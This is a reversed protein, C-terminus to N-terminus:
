NLANILSQFGLNHIVQCLSEDAKKNNEYFDSITNLVTDIEDLKYYVPLIYPMSLNNESINKIYIGLGKEVAKLAYFQCNGVCNGCRICKESHFVLDTGIKELANAPCYRTCRTCAICKKDNIEIHTSIIIGISNKYMENYKEALEVLTTLEEDSYNEAPTPVLDRKFITERNEHLFGQIKIKMAQVKELNLPDNSLKEISDNLNGM